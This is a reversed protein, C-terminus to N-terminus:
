APRASGKDRYRHGHATLSIIAGVAIAANAFLEARVHGVEEGVLRPAPTHELLSM